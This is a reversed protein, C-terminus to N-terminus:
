AAQSEGAAVVEELDIIQVSPHDLAAAADRVSQHHTFLIVQNTKAFEALLELTATARADDFHVLIDDAVFPIPEGAKGYQEISALRFALFLQDRTGDSMKSVGVARGDARRGIVVPKGNADVDAEIGQFAGKTTLKFLAGARAILPDQHEARVRSIAETLLDHAVITEIWRETVTHIESTACEREAIAQNVESPDEYSRLATEFEKMTEVAAKVAEDHHHRELDLASQDARLSDIDRDACARRLDALPLQDGASAIKGHLETVRAQAQDRQHLRECVADIAHSEDVGLKETLAGMVRQAEALLREARAVHDNAANLEPALETFAASQQDNQDSYRRLEAAGEVPDAPLTIGLENACCSVDKALSAIDAEIQAIRRRTQAANSLEARASAWEDVIEEAAELSIEGKLGLAAVANSWSTSWATEARAYQALTDLLQRHQADKAAADRGDRLFSAHETDHAKIAAVAAKVREVLNGQGAATVGLQSEVLALAQRKPELDALRADAEALSIQLDNARQLLRAREIAITLLKGPDPEFATADPYSKAFAYENATAQSKLRTTTDNATQEALKAEEEREHQQALAAVRRADETRRDALDDATVNAEVLTEIEKERQPISAEAHGARHSAILPALARDRVHRADTIAEPSAVAAGSALRLAAAHAASRSARAEEGRVISADIDRTLRQRTEIESRLTEVDPVLIARMQELDRFGLRGIDHNLEDAAKSLRKAQTAASSQAQPLAALDAADVGFPRDRGVARAVDMTEKLVGIELALTISTNQTAAVDARRNVAESHLDRVIKLDGNRPAITALDFTPPLGLMVRLAALKADSEALDRRRNALSGRAERVAIATESIAIIRERHRSWAADVSLEDRRAQLRMATNAARAMEDEADSLKTRARDLDTHFGAHLHALDALGQLEQEAQALQALLPQVRVLRELESGRKGLERAEDILAKYRVLADAHGSRAELYADKSTASIKAVRDAAEVKGLAQYFARRDSKRPAFLGDVYVELEGLRAVMGRLGGGAEVILRGLEGDATLLGEGGARLTAHDLGFLDLFRERSTSGLARSLIDQDYATGKDDSLTKIRGKRRKLKLEAGDAMRLHANIRMMDYGFLEGHASNNPIGFLFDTVGSLLTSKGIENPGFVVALGREAEFTITRTVFAGYRELGLELLRM